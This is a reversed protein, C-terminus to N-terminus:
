QQLNEFCHFFRFKMHQYFMGKQHPFISNLCLLPQILTIWVRNWQFCHTLSPISVKFATTCACIISFAWTVWIRSNDWFISFFVRGVGKPRYYISTTQSLLPASSILLCHIWRKALVNTLSFVTNLIPETNAWLRDFVVIYWCNLANNAVTEVCCFPTKAYIHSSPHFRSGGSWEWTLDATLQISLLQHFSDLSVFMLLSPTPRQIKPYALYKTWRNSQSLFLWWCRINYLILPANSPLFWWFVAM